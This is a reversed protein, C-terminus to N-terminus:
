AVPDFVMRPSGNAGEDVCVKNKGTTKAAYMLHDARGLLQGLAEGPRYQALGISTTVPRRSLGDTVAPIRQRLTESLAYAEEAQMGPFIILFEEGGLRILYDGGRIHARVEATVGQLVRDGALHGEEDNIRKFDDLDLLAVSVAQAPQRDAQSMFRALIEMGPERMMAGTLGDYSAQEYLRRQYVSVDKHDQWSLLAAFAYALLGTCFAIPPLPQLGENVVPFLLYGVVLGILVAANWRLAREYGLLFVYTLPFVPFWILAVVDNLTFLAGLIQQASILVAFGTVAQEYGRYGRHLRYLLLPAFLPFLMAPVVRFWPGQRLEVYSMLVAVVVGISAAIDMFRIKVRVFEDSQSLDRAVDRSTNQTM